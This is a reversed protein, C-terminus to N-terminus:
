WSLWCPRVWYASPRAMMDEANPPSTLASKRAKKAGGKARKASVSRSRPTRRPPAHEAQGPDRHQALGRDGGRQDREERAHEEAGHAGLGLVPDLAEGEAHREELGPHVEDGHQDAEEGDALHELLDDGGLGSDVARARDPASPAAAAGAPDRAAARAARARCAPPCRPPRGRPPPLWRTTRRTRRARSATRSSAALEEARPWAPASTAESLLTLPEVPPAMIWRRVSPMGPLAAVATIIPAKRM